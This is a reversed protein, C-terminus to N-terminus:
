EHIQSKYTCVPQTFLATKKESLLHITVAEFSSLAMIQSVGSPIISYRSVAGMGLSVWFSFSSSPIALNLISQNETGTGKEVKKWKSLTQRSRTEEVLLYM